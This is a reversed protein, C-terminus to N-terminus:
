PFAVGGTLLNTSISIPELDRNRKAVTGNKAETKAPIATLIAKGIASNNVAGINTTIRAATNESLNRITSSSLRSRAIASSSYDDATSPM